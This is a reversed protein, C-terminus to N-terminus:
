RWCRYLYTIILFSFLKCSDHGNGGACIQNPTIMDLLLCVSVPNVVVNTKMLMTPLSTGTTYGWGSVTLSKSGDIPYTGGEVKALKVLTGDVPISSQLELIAIDNRTTQEDYNPHVTIAKGRYRTCTSCTRDNSGPLIYVTTPNDVTTGSVFCHAASLVFNPAILSGGCYHQRSSSQISVLFPFEHSSAQTGGAIKSDKIGRLIISAITLSSPRYSQKYSQFAPTFYRTLEKSIQEKKNINFLSSAQVSGIPHYMMLFVSMVVVVLCFIRMPHYYGQASCKEIRLKDM